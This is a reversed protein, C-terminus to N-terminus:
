ASIPSQTSPTLRNFCEANELLEDTSGRPSGAPQGVYASVQATQWTGTSADWARLFYQRQGTAQGFTENWCWNGQGVDKNQILWDTGSPQIRGIYVTGALPLTVCVKFQDGPSFNQQYNSDADDTWISYGNNSPM